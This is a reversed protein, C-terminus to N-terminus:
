ESVGRGDKSLDGPGPPDSVVLDGVTSFEYGKARLQRVILPVAAVTSSRDGGGDHMLIISGSTATDVVTRVIQDASPRQWDNTDVDWLVSLLNQKEAQSIVSANVAGYPARFLRSSVGAAALIENSTTVIEDKQRQSNLTTMNAHDWTHIGIQHGDAAEEAVVSPDNKVNRGIVFFTAPVQLKRLEALLPRTDPGPGDDFTLAIMRRAGGARHVSVGQHGIDVLERDRPGLDTASATTATTVTPVVPAAAAAPQSDGGGRTALGIVAIIVVVGLLM